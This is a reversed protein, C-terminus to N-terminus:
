PSRARDDFGAFDKLAQEAEATQSEYPMQKQRRWRAIAFLTIVKEPIVAVESDGQYLAKTGNWNVSQYVAKATAANAMYPYFDIFPGSMQM